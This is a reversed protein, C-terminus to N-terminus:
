RCCGCGAGGALIPHLSLSLTNTGTRLDRGKPRELSVLGKGDVEILSGGYVSKCYRVQM